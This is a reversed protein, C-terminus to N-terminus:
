AGVYLGKGVRKIKGQKFTRHIINSIKKQNFGTKKMLTAANVGKKSGRIIKLVKDTDTPKAARKKAHAKKAPIKKTAKAKASKSITKKATKSKEIKVFDNLIKDIKKILEKIEKNITRLEQKMAMESEEKQLAAMKNDAPLQKIRYELQLAESKTMESSIGVLKVPRRSRTYKSGKGSNHGTLRKKIDNSIGCYLSHDSCRLLYVVWNNAKM